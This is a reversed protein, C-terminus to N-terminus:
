LCSCLADGPQCDCAPRSTAPRAPPPRGMMHKGATDAIEASLQTAARSKRAALEAQLEAVRARLEKVEHAQRAVVAQLEVQTRTAVHTQAAVEAKIKELYLALAGVAVAAALGWGLAARGFFRSSTRRAPPELEAFNARSAKLGAQVIRDAFDDPAQQAPWRQESPKM